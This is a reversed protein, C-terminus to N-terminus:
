KGRKNAARKRVGQHLGQEERGQRPMGVDGIGVRGQLDLLDGGRGHRSFEAGRGIDIRAGRDFLRRLAIALRRLGARHVDGQTVRHLRVGVQRHQLQERAQAPAEVDNRRAFEFPYQSCPAFRALHHKGAHALRGVIHAKREIDAHLAEVDLRGALQGREVPDCLGRAFDRTHRQADVRVDVGTRMGINGRAQFGVFETDRLILSRLKRQLSRLELLHLQYADGAVDARLDRGDFGIQVRQVLHEIQHLLHLAFARFDLVDIEAATQADAVGVFGRRRRLFPQARQQRADGRATETMAGDHDLGTTGDDAIGAHQERAGQKEFGGRDLVKGHDIGAHVIQDAGRKVRGLLGDDGGLLPFAAGQFVVYDARHAFRGVPQGAVARQHQLFAIQQGNQRAAGVAHHHRGVVVAAASGGFDHDVAGGGRQNARAFRGFM